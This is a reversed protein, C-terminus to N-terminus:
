YFPRNEIGANVIFHSRQKNKYPKTAKLINFEIRGDEYLPM